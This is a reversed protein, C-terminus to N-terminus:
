QQLMRQSKGPFSKQDSNLTMMFLRACKYSEIVRTKNQYTIQFHAEMDGLNGVKNAYNIVTDLQKRINAAEGGSDM